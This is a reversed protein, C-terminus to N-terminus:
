SKDIKLAEYIPLFRDSNKYSDKLRRVYEGVLGDNSPEDRQKDSTGKPESPKAADPGTADLGAQCAAVFAALDERDHPQLAKILMSLDNLFDQKAVTRVVSELRVLAERFDQVSIDGAEQVPATLKAREFLRKMNWSMAPKWAGRLGQMEAALRQGGHAAIVVAYANLVEVFAEVKM